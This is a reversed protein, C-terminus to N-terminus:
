GKYNDPLDNEILITYYDELDNIYNMAAKFNDVVIYDVELIKQLIKTQKDGVLIVFPNVETIKDSLKKYLEEEIEKNEVYGPTIMIKKTDINSLIELANISGVLNANYSDDLIQYKQYQKLVLRNETNSLNSIHKICDKIDIKLYHLVCIGCLLNLIQHRGILKTNITDIYLNNYYLDFTSNTHSVEINKAQYNGYDFGYSIVDCKVNYERIFQNEYNLIAVKAKKTISMKENIINRITKFTDLHMYGIETVCVIEPNFSNTLEEIDNIKSAGYELVIYDYVELPIDNIYKSVGLLTNYSKYSCSGLYYNKLLDNIINKTSTKGYSGTVGIKHGNFLNYKTISNKLYKNNIYNDIPKNLYFPILLIFEFLLYFLINFYCLFLIPILLLYIRIIKNTFKLKVISVLTAMSLFVFLIFMSIFQVIDNSFLEFTMLCIFPILNYYLYNNKVYKLYKNTDYHELQLIQLYRYSKLICCILILYMM